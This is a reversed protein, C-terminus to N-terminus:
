FIEDYVFPTSVNVQYWDDDGEGIIKVTSAKCRVSDGTSNHLIAAVQDGLDIAEADGDNKPTFVQIIVLGPTRYTKQGNGIEIQRRTRANINFRVWPANIVPIFGVNPWAVPTTNGWGDNFRKRLVSSLHSVSM